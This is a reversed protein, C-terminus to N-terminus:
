IVPNKGNFIQQSALYLDKFTPGGNGDEEKTESLGLEHLWVGNYGYKKFLSYLEPWNIKGKGPVWHREQIFDYDSIHVTVIKDHLKQLFEEHTNNLLHNVDFCVRLKDNVSIMESLEEASNGLCAPTMDEVAIVAGNKYAVEALADLMEMSCRKRENRDAGQPLPLSPHVVFKDIGIDSCKQIIETFYTLAEKRIQSDTISIDMVQSPRFPLHCSWLLVDNERAMRHFEKFDIEPNNSLCLEVAELGSARLRTFREYTHEFAYSTIGIKYM